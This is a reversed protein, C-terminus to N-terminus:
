PGSFVIAFYRNGDDSLVIGIGAKTFAPNLINARHGPSNMFGNMAVGVTQGAPFNNMAINEGAASYGYGYQAMLSFPTQGGPSTHSFYHNTAMDNARIRAITLLTSNIQLPAVGAAARASNHAAFM